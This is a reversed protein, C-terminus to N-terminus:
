AHLDGKKVSYMQSYYDLTLELGETLSFDPKWSLLQRAKNNNLYCTKIEGPKAELYVPKIETGCIENMRELLKIVETAQNTSINFIQGDGLHLAALNALAVDEVYIFDRTQTGDGFIVPQKRQLLRDTFISVVGGEGKPDQRIGYVNAYRLITYKLQFLDSFSKLYQEPTLKSVGYFSLPRLPHEEDIGLYAPNGYVAASSAYVIKEVHFKVCCRLLNITGLINTAADSSPNLISNHVNIQAAQHIVYNPHELQFVAELSAYDLIDVRYFVSSTNINEEKGTSLNDVVLVEYKDRILCDVIHSGIFGAGGTVLVKM